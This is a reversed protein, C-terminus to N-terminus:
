LGEYKVDDAVTTDRLGAASRLSRWAQGPM